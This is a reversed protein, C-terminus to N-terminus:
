SFVGHELRGLLLEVERAGVETDAFSLPSEGQFAVAPTKLWERASDESELVETARSLLRAFRVLKESEPSALRGAKRRRHLTARSIGLLPALEDDTVALWQALAQFEAM